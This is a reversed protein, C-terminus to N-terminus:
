VDLREAAEAGEPRPGRAAAETPPASTLPGPAGPSPDGDPLRRERAVQRIRVATTGVLVLGAVVAILWGTTGAQTARVDFTVPAGVPDGAATVLQARVQVTGNTAADVRAQASFSEGAALRPVDIPAVTLRQRTSSTFMLRGRIANREPNDPDAPLDNTVTMPFFGSRASTVVRRPDSIRIGDRLVDDLTGQQATVFIRGSKVSRRFSTSAARAVAADGDLKAQTSSVLLDEYTGSRRALRSVAALQDAGLEKARAAQGYRYRENWESPEGNLLARLTAPRLWPARVAADASRAQDASTVLRVRGVVEDAEAATAELWTDALLRQQLHIPTDSPQPGPGGEASVGTYRVVPVDEPGELLPGAARVSTDSLLIAQPNLAALAAVTKRDAAGAAPLALLPLSRTATVARSAAAAQGLVAQQGDHVLAAADPSGYLLRYGDRQAAMRDFAALWRGADAAGRSSAPRDDGGQVAYGDRMAQLTQILAPDVAFSADPSDAAALLARLRGGEAVEDALHDDVLLDEGLLSPRSGLVVVSTVQLSTAPPAALVPAFVRVRGLTIQPGNEVAQGRVHAGMLYVGDDSPLELTAVDVSVTFRTREGPELTRDDESPINQFDGKRAGLPEDAASGLASAMGEADKVPDLSRWFYAQLNSVPDDSTNTVEATLAVRGERTPLAPDLRELRISVFATPEEAAAPAPILPGALLVAALAAGILARVRRGPTGGM